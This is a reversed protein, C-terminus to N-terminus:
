NGEDEHEKILKEIFSDYQEEEDPFSDLSKEALPAIGFSTNLKNDLEKAGDIIIPIFPLKHIITYLLKAYGKNQTLDEFVENKMIIDEASEAEMRVMKKQLEDFATKTYPLVYKKFYLPENEVQVFLSEDETVRKYSDTDVLMLLSTNKDALPCEEKHEVTLAMYLDYQQKMVKLSDSVIWYDSKQQHKYLYRGKSLECKFEYDFREFLQFIFKDFEEM